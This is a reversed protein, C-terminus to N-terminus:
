DQKLLYEYFPIVEVVNDSLDIKTKKEYTIILGKNINFKKMFSKLGKLEVKSVKIEIPLLSEDTIKIIDVEVNGDRWFYEAELQM